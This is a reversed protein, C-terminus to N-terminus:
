LEMWKIKSVPESYCSPEGQSRLIAKAPLSATIFCLAPSTEGWVEGTFPFSASPEAAGLYKLLSTM